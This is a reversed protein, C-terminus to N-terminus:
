LFRVDLRAQQATAVGGSDRFASKLSYLGNISNALANATWGVCIFFYYRFLIIQFRLKYDFCICDCEFQAGDDNIYLSNAHMHVNYSICTYISQLRFATELQIRIARISSHSVCM